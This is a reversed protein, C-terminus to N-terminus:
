NNHHTINKKDFFRIIKSYYRWDSHSPTIAPMGFPNDKVYTQVDKAEALGDLFVRLEGNPALFDDDENEIDYKKPFIATNPPNLLAKETDTILLTNSSSYKPYKEWIHKLEKLFVPKNENELCMFGTNTCQNQDWTFLFKNKLEGIVHNLVKEINHEMASSWLGVEFREFCFKLFGECLPRKYVLFKGYSFDPRRNKPITAPSRIHGRHVIIGALPIVLLKKKPGLTLKDLSIGLDIKTENEEQEEEHSNRSDDSAVIDKTIKSEKAAM